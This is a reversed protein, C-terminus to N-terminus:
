NTNDHSSRRIPFAKRKLGILQGPLSRLMRILTGFMHGLLREWDYSWLLRIMWRHYHWRSLNPPILLDFRGLRTHVMEYARLRESAPFDDTEIVVRILSPNSRFHIGDEPDALFRANAKAWGWLETGPYPVLLNFHAGIGTRKAFEVSRKQAEFSDGPLGIIFYGMVSMGAEKFIRIGREIEEIGEGKKAAALVDPDASEVGVNVSHCGSRLMLEALEPDIRDARLGNPCSWNLGLDADILARCIHKCRTTDLNFVDDIIEFSTIGHDRQACRLEEVVSEASRKRFGRGSIEPVSCFTCEYVCGRSTVLPYATRLIKIVNQPFLDYEPYPLLNLDAAAVLPRKFPLGGKLNQKTVVGPLDEITEDRVLRHCITPLQHEGEGLFVVDFWPETALERWALKTHPGGLIVPLKPLFNKVQQAMRRADKMTATKVSLGLIDPDHEDIATLVQEDTMAENNLDIVFVQHGDKRLMPVLYAIGINPAPGYGSVAGQWGRPDILIVKAM